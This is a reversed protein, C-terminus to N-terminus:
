ALADWDDCATGFPDEYKVVSGKLPYSSLQAAQDKASKNKSLLFEMFDRVQQQASKPLQAFLDNIPMM